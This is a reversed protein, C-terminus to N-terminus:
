AYFNNYSNDYLCFADWSMIDYDINDHNLCWPNKSTIGKSKLLNVLKKNDKGDCHREYLEDLNLKFGHSILVKNIGRKRWANFLTPITPIKM